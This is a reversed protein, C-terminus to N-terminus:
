MVLRLHPYSTSLTQGARGDHLEREEAEAEDLLADIEEATMGDLGLEDFIEDLAGNIMDVVRYAITERAALGDLVFDLSALDNPEYRKGDAIYRAWMRTLETARRFVHKDDIPDIDTLDQLLAEAEAQGVYLRAEEREEETAHHRAGTLPQQSYTYSRFFKPM